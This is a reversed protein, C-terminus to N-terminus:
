LLAPSSILRRLAAAHSYNSTSASLLVETFINIGDEIYDLFIAIFFFAALEESVNSTVYYNERRSIGDSLLM